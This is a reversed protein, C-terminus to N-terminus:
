FQPFWPRTRHLHRELRQHLHPGLILNRAVANFASVTQKGFDAPSSGHDADKVGAQEFAHELSGRASSTYLGQPKAVGVPASVADVLARGLGPATVNAAIRKARDLM